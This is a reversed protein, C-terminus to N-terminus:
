LSYVGGVESTPICGKYPGPVPDYVGVEKAGLESCFIGTIAMEKLTQFAEQEADSGNMMATLVEDQQEPKLKTFTNNHLKQSAQDFLALSTRASAKEAENFNVNIANDLFRDALCDLAGPTTTKPVIRDMAAQVTKLEESSLFAPTWDVADDAKCSHLLATSGGVLTVGFLVASGKLIDRRHM